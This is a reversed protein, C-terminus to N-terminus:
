GVCQARVLRSKVLEVVARYVDLQEAESLGLVEFVVADLARRDPLVRELSVEEPHINSYNRNPKPLGLEEFISKVERGAMQEFANLLRERQTDTFAAPNPIPLQKWEPGYFTILGSQNTRGIIDTFIYTMSSCLLAVLLEEKDVSQEVSEDVLAFYFTHDTPFGGPNYTIHPIQRFFQPILVYPAPLPEVCWWLIRAACTPNYQYGQREGWQIYAWAHPFQRQLYATDHLRHRAEDPPMLVLYRLDEPRVRLTKLERPSKIVPRLWATEIEGQWGAGNRVQVREGAKGAVIDAVRLGVPELYFFENAGTKIGFRVEAVDGLRVLLPPLDTEKALYYEERDRAKVLHYGAQQIADLTPLPKGVVREVEALNAIKPLLTADMM